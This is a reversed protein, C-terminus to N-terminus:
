RCADLDYALQLLLDFLLSCSQSDAMSYTTPTVRNCCSLAAADSEQAFHATDLAATQMVLESASHWVQLHSGQDASTAALLFSYECPQCSACLM